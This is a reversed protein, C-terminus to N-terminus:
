IIAPEGITLSPDGLLTWEQVTKANISNFSGFPTNWDITFNDLYKTISDKWIQGLLRTGNSYEKFFQVNLWNTGEGDYEASYWALGTAGITAISGSNPKSVLRWSWCEKLWKIKNWAKCYFNPGIAFESNHCGGVLCVPLKDKNNLFLMHTGSFKGVSNREPDFTVWLNANGHGSLYLFGCGKNIETSIDFGDVLSGTSGWLKVAEFDPISDLAQQNYIEGEYGELEEYTDGGVVVFRKFWSPDFSGTEYDIIKEVVIEVEDKDICALRGLCIDPKLDIPADQAVDGDWEGYIGDQDNDWSSFSNDEEYIDAYYLESIFNIEPNKTYNDNNYCLRIPIQGYSGVFLVYTINWNEISDKIFYKIKEQNDRGNLEFYKGLYIDNLTVLKTKVGLNDKHDIFDQLATSYSSPSVILMDYDEDTMKYNYSKFFTFKGGNLSFNADVVFPGILSFILVAIIFINVIREKMNIGGINNINSIM